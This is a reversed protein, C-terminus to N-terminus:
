KDGRFKQGDTTVVMVHDGHDKFAFVEAAKIAKTTTKKKGNKDETVITRIVLKAAQAATMAQAANEKGSM